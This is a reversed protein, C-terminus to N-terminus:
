EIMEIGPTHPMAHVRDLRAQLLYSFLQSRERADCRVVHRLEVPEHVFPPLRGYGPRTLTPRHLEEEVLDNSVNALAAFYRHRCM